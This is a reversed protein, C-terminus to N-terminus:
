DHSRKKNKKKRFLRRISVVISLWLLGGFTDLLVDQGSATRGATFHQHLEDACAFLFTIFIAVVFRWKRRPLAIYVAIAMAGFSTLHAFKRVLFELFYYYGRTEVSVDMGYYPIHIYSLVDYFPANPLLRMLDPVITQQKYPMSSSIFVGILLLVIPLFKMWRM